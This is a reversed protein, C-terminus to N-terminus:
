SIGDILTYSYNQMLCLFLNNCEVVVSDNKKELDANGNGKSHFIKLVYDNKRGM